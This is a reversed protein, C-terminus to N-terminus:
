YLKRRGMDRGVINEVTLVWIWYSRIMYPMLKTATQKFSQVSPVIIFSSNWGDVLLLFNV